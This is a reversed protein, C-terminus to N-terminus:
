KSITLPFWPSTRDIPEGYGVCDPYSVVAHWDYEGKSLYDPIVLPITFRNVKGTLHMVNFGSGYRTIYINNNSDRIKPTIKTPEGCSEGYKTRSATILYDCRNSNCKGVQRSLRTQYEIVKPPSITDLIYTIRKQNESVDLFDKFSDKIGPGFYETWLVGLFAMIAMIVGFSNWLYEIYEMANKKKPIVSQDKKDSM